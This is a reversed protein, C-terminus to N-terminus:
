ELRQVDKKVADAKRWLLARAQGVPEVLATSLDPHRQPLPNGAADGLGFRIKEGPQAIYLTGFMWDWLALTDGYNRNFHRPDISHHVQHQAPSILVHELWGPYRMPIHSHKLNNTALNLLALFVNTGALMAVDFTGFIFAMALGQVIGVAIPSILGIVMTYFPHHRFATVPSMEEASHHLAHFVWLLPKEHNLRHYAYLVLDAALFIVLASLIPNRDEPRAPGLGLGHAVGVATATAVVAFSLSTFMGIFWNLYFLKADLWFSPNRYVRAPFAWAFFSIGPRWILWLTLCLSLTAVINLPSFAPGLSDAYIWFLTQLQEWVQEWTANERDLM